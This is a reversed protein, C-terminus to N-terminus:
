TKNKQIRNDYILFFQKCVYCYFRYRGIDTSVKGVKVPSIQTSQTQALTKSKGSKLLHPQAPLQPCQYVNSGMGLSAGSINFNFKVEQQFCGM